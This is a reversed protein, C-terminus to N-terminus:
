KQLFIISKKYGTPSFGTSSKFARSFNHISSFGLKDTIESISLIDDRLLNKAEEIKLDSFYQIPSKGTYEKFLVSLHSKKIFFNDCIDNLTIKSYINNQLYVVILNILNNKDDSRKRTVTAFSDSLENGNRILKILFETFHYKMLQSSGFTERSFDLPSNDYYDGSIKGMANKSEQILLSLLTKSTKDLSFTKNEFFSM